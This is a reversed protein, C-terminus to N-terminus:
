KKEFIFWKISIYKLESQIQPKKQMGKDEKEAIFELTVMEEEAYM